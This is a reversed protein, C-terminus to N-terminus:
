SKEPTTLFIEYENIKQVLESKEQATIFAGRIANINMQRIDELTLNTNELIYRYEELIDTNSVTNNDTNITTKIGRKYIRSDGKKCSHSSCSFNFSIFIPYLFSWIANCM